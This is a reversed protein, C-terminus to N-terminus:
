GTARCEPLTKDPPYFVPEVDIRHLLRCSREEAPVVEAGVTVVTIFCAIAGAAYDFHCVNLQSRVGIQDQETDARRM